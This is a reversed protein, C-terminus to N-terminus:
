KKLDKIIEELELIRETQYKLAIQNANIVSHLYSIKSSELNKLENPEEPIIIGKEKSIRKVDESSMSDLNDKVEKLLEIATKSSEEKLSIETYGEPLESKWAIHNNENIYYFGYPFKLEFTDIKLKEFYEKIKKGYEETGDGKIAVKLTNPQKPQTQKLDKAMKARGDIWGNYFANWINWRRDESFVNNFHEKVDGIIYTSDLTPADEREESLEDILHIVYNTHGLDYSTMNSLKEKLKDANIYKNNTTNLIDTIINAMIHVGLDSTIKINDIPCEGISKIKGIEIKVLEINKELESM